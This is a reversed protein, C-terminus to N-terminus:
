IIEGAELEGAHARGRAAGHQGLPRVSFDRLVWNEGEYAFWVNEFEILGKINKLPAHPYDADEVTLETRWDFLSYIREASTM